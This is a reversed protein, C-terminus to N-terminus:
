PSPRVLYLTSNPERKLKKDCAKLGQEPHKLYGEVFTQYQDLRFSM